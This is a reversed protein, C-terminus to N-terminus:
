YYDSAPKKTWLITIHPVLVFWILASLTPFSFFSLFIYLLFVPTAKIHPRTRGTSDLHKAWGMHVRM